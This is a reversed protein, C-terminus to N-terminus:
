DCRTAMQYSANRKTFLPEVHTPTRDFSRSVGEDNHASESRTDVSIADSEEAVSVVVTRAV